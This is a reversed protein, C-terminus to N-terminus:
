SEKWGREPIGLGILFCILGAALPWQYRNEFRNFQRVKQDGHKLADLAQAIQESEDGSPTARFYQGGSEQAIQILTKEDLRSLVVDGKKDRKYGTRHGQDDYVPIPEGQTSGIGIAYIKMGAKASEKAAGEPNSHHDEGDTLLILVRSGAGGAQLGKLATRIAEGIVTGPIPVTQTDISGLVQKAANSDITLPCEIFAQGAFAIIGIRDGVLRDMLQGLLLKAQTMRTPKFDEAQMSLSCDVAIFVDLGRQKFEVLRSGLLPGTLAIVWFFLGALYFASIWKRRYTLRAPLMRVITNPKGLAEATRSRARVGLMLAVLLAAPAILWFVMNPYAFYTM